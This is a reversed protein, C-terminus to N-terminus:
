PAVKGEQAPKELIEAPGRTPAAGALQAQLERLAAALQRDPVAPVGFKQKFEVPDTIEPRLRALFVAKEEEPSMPELIDPAIGRQHISVGSPTYYRATTLRFGAGGSLPFITQVSGKGFTKEGVLVARGADRMAGAVIEAASASGGNVLLAVPVTLREGSGGSRLEARDAPTRGEMYVILEGKPFFDEAVDVAATLLGGPNNRLDVVLARLGEARLRAAAAAFEEGTKQAFMGLRVYGIGGPLMMVDRVSEVRIVERKLRYELERAPEGRELSVLVETGPEGRIKGIFQDLKWGHVSVGDVKVLVDGRLIGAREGPTGAIPAIVVIRGDVEEVQVGIGGFKSEIEEELRDFAASPLYESYPDLGRALGAMAQAALREAEVAGADVYHKNALLMVERVQAAARETARDPWWGWAQVVQLVGLTMLYGAIVGLGISIIRKFM